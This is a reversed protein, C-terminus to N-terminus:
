MPCGNYRGESGGSGGVGVRQGVTGGVGDGKGDGMGVIDGVGNEGVGATVSYGM